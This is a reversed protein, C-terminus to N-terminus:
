RPPSSFAGPAPRVRCRRSRSPATAGSLRARPWPPASASGARGGSRASRRRTEREHRGDILRAGDRVDQGIQFRPMRHVPEDAAIDPEALGLDRQAGGRSRHQASILDRQDRRRRHQHALVEFVKRRRKAANPMSSRRATAARRDPRPACTLCPSSSPDISITIPVCATAPLPTRKSRSPRSIMSSSCRKPVRMLSLSRPKASPHMHQRQARRRDRAGQLARDEPQVRQAQEFGRRGAAQRHLGHQRREIRTEHPLRQSASFPPPAALAKDDHGRISSMSAIAPSAARAAERVEIELDDCPLIGAASISSTMTAKASPAPSTSSAVSMM